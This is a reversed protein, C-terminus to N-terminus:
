APLLGERRSPTREVGPGIACSNERASRAAEQYTRQWATRFSTRHPWAALRGKGLTPSAGNVHARVRSWGAGADCAPGDSPGGAPASSVQFSLGLKLLSNKESLSYAYYAEKILWKPRSLVAEFCRRMKKKKKGM